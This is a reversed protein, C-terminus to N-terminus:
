VRRRPSAALFLLSLPIALAPLCPLLPQAGSPPAPPKSSNGAEVAKSSIESALAANLGALAESAESIQSLTLPASYNAKLSALKQLHSEASAEGILWASSEAKGSFTDMSLALALYQANGSAMRETTANFLSDFQARLELTKKYYGSDSYNKALASIDELGLIMPAIQPDKVTKALEGAGAKINRIGNQMRLRFEAVDKGRVSLYADNEAGKGLIADARSRQGDIASLASKLSALNQAQSSILPQSYDIKPCYEYCRRTGNGSCGEDFKTLFISNQSMNEAVSSLVSLLSIKSDIAVPDSRIAELGQSYAALGSAYEKRRINWDMASEIFGDSQIIIECQPVSFCSVICSQRDTCGPDGDEGIYQLCKSENTAKAAEVLPPFAMASSVKAEYGSRNKADQELLAALEPSGKVPNGGSDVVYIEAGWASVLYYGGECLLPSYAAGSDPEFSRSIFADLSSAASASSAFLLLAFALAPLPFRM